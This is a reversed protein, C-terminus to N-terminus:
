DKKASKRATTLDRITTKKEMAVRMRFEKDHIMATIRKTIFKGNTAFEWKKNHIAM